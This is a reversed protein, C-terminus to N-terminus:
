NFIVHTKRNSSGCIDPGFMVSYPTDGSLSDQDVDGHFLKIYAGGCDLDQEHKVTYQIVLQKGTNTFSEDLKASLGYFRADESTQIAKDSADAFYEGATWGWEGMDAKSKWQTPVM